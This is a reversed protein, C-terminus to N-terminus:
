QAPHGFGIDDIFVIGSGGATTAAKDGITIVMKKVKTFNVGAFDSMPTSWLTWAATTVATANTATAKKGASDEITLSMNAAANYLPSNIVAGQWAGSIAGTGAIGDFDFTRDEGTAHSTVCLGIYVPNTMSIATQGMQTWTKGDASVSGTFTDAFREIKVWYPPALVSGSDVNASAGDTAGRYQFSAGNGAASAASHATMVMTAHTSGGNLSDRIMVGGKAWANTGTGNSVVRAILTGDGTLTKYAYTFEDSNNWIDAGAGTVSMKGGTETVAVATLAPYGRIWLGVDTAGNGTWNQVPDFEREVESYFPVGAKEYQSGERFTGDNDYRMPMSQKGGHVIAQEAFPSDDYGVQSGSTTGFNGDIWTQWITTGAEIDDTYSEFDDAMEFEQSTFSWVDGAYTGTDGVEDVKWYYMTGFDM